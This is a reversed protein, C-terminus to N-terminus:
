PDKSIKRVDPPAPSPPVTPDLQACIRELQVRHIRHHGAALAHWGHADLPGFWPHPYRLPTKLDAAAAVTALLADCSREYEAIVRPTVRPSPKVAATSATGAPIRGAALDGIVRGISLHVIRLHDLTMLVSWYRSSDELGAVRDILVPRALFDAPCSQVLQRIRQRERAFQRNFSARSGLRRKLTSLLRGIVLEMKPLGAGPPALRPALDQNM